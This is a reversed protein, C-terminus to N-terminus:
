ICVREGHVSSRCRAGAAGRAAVATAPCGAWGAYGCEDTGRGCDGRVSGNSPLRLTWTSPLRLDVGAAGTPGRGGGGRGDDGVPAVGGRDGPRGARGGCGSGAGPGPRHPPRSRGAGSLAGAALHAFLLHLPEPIGPVPRYPGAGARHRSPHPLHASLVVLKGGTSGGGAAHLGDASCRCRDRGAISLAVIGTGRPFMADRMPGLVGAAWAGPATVFFPANLGVFVGAVIGLRWLAERRGYTQWILVAYFLLYFWAQQRSAAALGLLVASAWRRDRLVWGSLVLLAYLGDTAGGLLTPWLAANALIVLLAVWRAAGSSRRLILAAVALYCLSFFISIDHIHLAVFIAPFLFAASPYSFYSEFEAPYSNHARQARSFQADLQAPSPYTSIHRFAGARLPTTKIAAEQVPVSMDRGPFTRQLCPGMRFASYPNRAKLLEDVACSTAATADNGYHHTSGALRGYPLTGQLTLLGLVAGLAISAAGLPRAHRRLWAPVVARAALYFCCLALGLALCQLYLIPTQGPLRNAGPLFLMDAGHFLWLLPAVGPEQRDPVSHIFSVARAASMGAVGAILLAARAALDRDRYDNRAREWGAM